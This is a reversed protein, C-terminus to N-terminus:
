PAVAAPKALREAAAKAEQTLRMEPPGAALKDLLRRAGPNGISELVEVARIQRVTEPLLSTADLRDLLAELRRKAEPSPNGAMAKQLAAAARDDLAELERTAKERVQFQGDNLDAILREIRKTEAPEASQLQTELFAVGREPSLVLRGLAAYGAAAGGALDKWDAELEAPAREASLRPRGTIRGVDWINATSPIHGAKPVDLGGSVLTRGDPSFAVALVWGRSAQKPPEVGYRGVEKGSPLDWLRATGDISGSALTRGDSSFVVTWLDETHGKLRAREQGTATERLSIDHMSLIALTRGDPSLAFGLGPLGVLTLGNLASPREKGAVVDWARIVDPMFGMRAVGGGSEPSALPGKSLLTKGDPSFTLSQIHTQKSPMEHVVQGSALEYLRIVGYGGCAILKGDPGIAVGGTGGPFEHLKEGTQRKWVMVGAEKPGAQRAVVVLENDPSFLIRSISFPDYDRSVPVDLRRLEQGTQADWLRATADWSGTGVWRGDCSYAVSTVRDKHGPLTRIPKGTDAGPKAGADAGPGPGAQPVPDQPLAQKEAPPQTGADPPSWAFTSYGIGCIVLAVFLAVAGRKMKNWFMSQIVGQALILATASLAGQATRTGAAALAAAQVTSHVLASPPVAKVASGALTITLGGSLVQARRVLRKALLARGRVLRSAVTGELWGLQKAAEQRTNGELDCLVIPRQYKEPLRSLEEDLLPLWDNRTATGSVESRAVSQEKTRRRAADARAKLATRRAVGHLWDGLVARSTLSTGRHVLVIFTAQFADDADAQNGLIRRCVGLVMAGHRSVLAAFASEDRQNLFQELLQADTKDEAGPAGLAKILAGFDNRAGNTPM